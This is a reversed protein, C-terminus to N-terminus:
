PFRQGEWDVVQAIRLIERTTIPDRGQTVPPLFLLYEQIDPALNLLSMILTIRARTVGGPGADRYTIHIKGLPLNVEIREIILRILREQERPVLGKWVEDFDSFPAEIDEPTFPHGDGLSEKAAAIVSAHVKPDRAVKRVQDIVFSEIEAAPLSRTNVTEYGDRKALTNTYYRYLRGGKKTFTHALAAGTEADYLLGRLLADDVEERAM